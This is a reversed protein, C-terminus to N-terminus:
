SEVAYNIAQEVLGFKTLLKAGKDGGLSVAWAYAVQKSANVGGHGKAVRIADDWLDHSRYMNVASKWENADIYHREADKFKNDAELQQALHLHTEALLDLRVEVECLLELHLHTEALLDPRYKGVLRIM